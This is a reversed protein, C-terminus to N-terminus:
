SAVDIPLEIDGDDFSAVLTIKRADLARLYAAIRSLQPDGHELESITPQTVGLRKAVDTQTRHRARRATGLGIARRPAERDPRITQRPVGPLAPKGPARHLTIADGDAVFRDARTPRKRDTM